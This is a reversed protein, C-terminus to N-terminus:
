SIIVWRYREGKGQTLVSDPMTGHPCESNSPSVRVSHDVSYFNRHHGNHQRDIDRAQGLHLAVPQTM